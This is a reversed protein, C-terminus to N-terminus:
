HNGDEGEESELSAYYAEEEENTMNRKLDKNWHRNGAGNLDNNTYLEGNLDRGIPDVNNLHERLGTPNAIYLRAQVGFLEFFRYRQFATLAPLHPMDADRIENSIYMQYDYLRYVIRNTNKPILLIIFNDNGFLKDSSIFNYVRKDSTVVTKKFDLDIPGSNSPTQYTYEIPTIQRINNPRGIINIQMNPDRLVTLLGTIYQDLTNMFTAKLWNLHDSYYGHRPAFDITRAMKHNEDLRLYSLDLQEHIDDDKVNELVDKIMSMYKTVQNIGYLAGIDKVEEPTVPVTIGDNEPIQVFITKEGWEVRPTKRSRTSADFRAFMKVAKIVNSTSNIEFMNDKQLCFLTDHIAKETGNADDVVTLDVMSTIIRGTDGYGPTFEAKWPKWVLAKGDTSTEAETIAGTSANITIAKTGKEVYEEVAVACIHTAVSLNNGIRNVGFYTNLIDVSNAEPLAIPIEKPANASKWFKFIQNQQNALDIKKGTTPDVMYRTEISETWSPSKAVFRPIAQAFVCNLMLYKHMPLSLGIMPNYTALGSIANEKVAQIDNVFAEAMMDREDQYQEQTVTQVANGNADVGGIVSDNVFFEKLADINGPFALARQPEAFYDIRSERLINQQTELFSKAYNYMPDGAFNSMEQVKRKGVSPM